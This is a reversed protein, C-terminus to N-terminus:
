PGALAQLGFVRVSVGPSYHALTPSGPVVIGAAAVLDDKFDLVEATSVEYPPHAVQGTKLQGRHMSYLLYREILFADLSRPETPLFDGQHRIRVNDGAGGACRASQYYVEDGEVALSMKAFHYPLGFWRRAITVAVRNAAELSFFWVGPERGERHVYTRVNTEHFASIRPFAPVGVPRIGSMTFPVLGVYAKGDFTDVTLGTPLLAQILSAEVEWHLFTLHSWRQHMVVRGTQSSALREQDEWLLPTRDVMM